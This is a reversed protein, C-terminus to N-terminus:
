DHNCDELFFDGRYYTVSAHDGFTKELLMEEDNLKKELNKLAFILAKGNNNSVLSGTFSDYRSVNWSNLFVDDEEAKDMSRGTVDFYYDETLKVSVEHISFTCPNGDDFFPTYQKWRVSEVGKTSKVFEDLLEHVINQGEAAMMQELERKAKNYKEKAKKYSM